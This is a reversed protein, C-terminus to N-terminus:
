GRQLLEIRVAPPTEVFAFNVGPRPNFPGELLRAGLAVLRQLEEQLDGCTVCFHELGSRSASSGSALVEGERANSFSIGVMDDESRCQVLRDGSNRVRDSFIRFNFARVYWEAATRPDPARIHIHDIHFAMSTGPLNELM